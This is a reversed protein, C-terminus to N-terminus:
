EPNLTVPTLKEKILSEALAFDVAAVTDVSQTLTQLIDEQIVGRSKAEAYPLRHFMVMSYRPCFYDPFRNELEFALQSRLLFKEDTVSDRM